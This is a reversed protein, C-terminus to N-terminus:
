NIFGAPNTDWFIQDTLSKQNLNPNDNSDLESKPFFFSRPFTGPDQFSSDFVPFGTRRYANYPEIGNGFSGIYNQLVIINLKDDSTVATNFDSIISNTFTVVDINENTFDSVKNLSNQIGLQLYGDTSGSVGSLTLSAEALLFYINSSTLIPSIGAGQLNSVETVPLFQSNDFAGGSPYSGFTARLLNDNPIGSEDGHIRGWYGNGIYCQATTFGGSLCDNIFTGTPADNTQRYIYHNLRPDATGLSGNLLKLFYNSMYGDAGDIYNGTYDPHRNDPVLNTGFRYQFDDSFNTMYNGSTLITNIKDVSGAEDFNNSKRSQVLMKIILSNALKEWKSMDGQYYLDTPTFSADEQILDIASELENILESYIYEGDNVNPESFNPNSAEDYTAYGIFDVMNMMTVVKLIKGIAVHHPLNKSASIEEIVKLNSMVAYTDEWPSNLTEQKVSYTYVSFQNVQRILKRSVNSLSRVQDRTTISISNLVYNPDASDPTLQSPNTQLELDTTECSFFTFALLSLVIIYKNYNRM